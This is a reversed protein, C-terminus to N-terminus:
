NIILTDILTTLGPIIEIDTLTTDNFGEVPLFELTYMGEPLGRILYDGTTTDAYTSSTDNESIALILPKAAAPQIVGEVSGTIAETFVRIVPKLIYKGNGTKVISKAAEFDLVYTYSIGPVFEQHVNLKLGSQQASPTKLDHVVDDAMVTNDDGLILRIQSLFGTPIEDTVLVTDKGNVFELINYIAKNTELEILSDNIIVKVAEIDINVEQYEGPMDTLLFQIKARESENISESCATLLLMFAVVPIILQSIKM